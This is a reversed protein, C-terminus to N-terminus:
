VGPNKTVTVGGQHMQCEPCSQSRERNFDGRICRASRALNAEKVISTLRFIIKQQLNVPCSYRKEVMRTNVAIAVDQERFQGSELLQRLVSLEVEDIQSDSIKGTIARFFFCTFSEVEQMFLTFLPPGLGGVSTVLEHEEEYAETLLSIILSFMVLLVIVFYTLFFIPGRVNRLGGSGNPGLFEFQGLFVESMSFMSNTPNNFKYLYHGFVMHTFVVFAALLIFFYLMFSFLDSGARVLTRQIINLRNNNAFIKLFRALLVLCLVAHQRKERGWNLCCVYLQPDYPGHSSVQFTSRLDDTYWRYFFPLSYVYIMVLAYDFLSRFLFIHDWWISKHASEKDVLKPTAAKIFDSLRLHEPDSLRTCEGKLTQLAPLEYLQFNLEILLSNFYSSLIVVHGDPTTECCEMFRFKEEIRKEIDRRRQLAAAELFNELSVSTNKQNDMLGVFSNIEKPLPVRDLWCTLMEVVKQQSSSSNRDHFLNSLQQTQPICKQKYFTRANQIAHFILVMVCIIFLARSVIESTSPDTMTFVEALGRSRVAGGSFFISLVKVHVFIDLNQNYLAIEFVMARTQQDVFGSEKLSRVHQQVDELYSDGSFQVSHGGCPIVGKGDKGTTVGEGPVCETYGVEVRKNGSARGIFPATDINPNLNVNMGIMSQFQELLGVPSKLQSYCSHDWTPDNSPIGANAGGFDECSGKKVRIQRMRVSRLIRNHRQVYGRAFGNNLTDSSNRSVPFLVPVVVGQAWQWWETHTMVDDWTKRIHSMEHPFEENLLADKVSHTVYTEASIDRTLYLMNFFALVFLCYMICDCKVALAKKRKAQSRRLRFEHASMVFATFGGDDLDSPSQKRDLDDSMTEHSMSPHVRLMTRAWNGRAVRFGLYSCVCWVFFLSVVHGM